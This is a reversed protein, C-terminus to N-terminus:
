KVVEWSKPKYMDILEGSTIILQGILRLGVIVSSIPVSAYAIWMPIGTASGFVGTEMQGFVIEFGYYMVVVSTVLWVIDIILYFVKETKLFGKKHLADSFLLVQIHEKDKLGASVGLWSLWVFLFKGLEESWSLADGIVYRFFVQAFIIIVMVGLLLCLSWRELTNYKDVVKRLTEM